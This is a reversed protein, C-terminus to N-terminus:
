NVVNNQTASGEVLKSLDIHYKNLLLIFNLCKQEGNSVNIYYYIRRSCSLWVMVHEVAISCTESNISTIVRLTTKWRIMKNMAIRDEECHFAKCM